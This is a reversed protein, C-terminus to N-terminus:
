GAKWNTIQPPLRGAIFVGMSMAVLAWIMTALTFMRVVADDYKFSELGHKETVATQM